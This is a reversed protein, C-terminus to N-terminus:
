SKHLIHIQRETIKLYCRRLDSDPIHNAKAAVISETRRIQEATAEPHDLARLVRAHASSVRETGLCCENAQPMLDAAQGTHKLATTPEDQALLVLGIEMEGWMEWAPLGIEQAVHVAERARDLASQPNSLQREAQALAALGLALDERCESAQALAVAETLYRHATYPQDCALEVLGLVSLAEALCHPHALARAQAIDCQLRRRAEAYDGLHYLALGLGIEASIVGHECRLTQQLTLAQQFQEAASAYHGRYLEWYGLCTLGYAEAPQAGIRQALTLGKTLYQEAAAFQGLKLYLLGIDLGDWAIRNHDDIAEHCTYAKQQYALAQDYNGLHLHVYGLIHSIRGQVDPLAAVGVLALASELAALAPRPQGMFYRAFGIQALFRAQVSADNLRQALAVGQEATAIAAQYHGELNLYRVQHAWARLKLSGEGNSDALAMLEGLDADREALRGQLFRLHARDALLQGRKALCDSDTCKPDLQALLDLMRSQHAEAESWAFLAKARQAALDHYHLAQKIEGGAEFHHALDVFARRELQQLAYGARRHLLQRRVLSLSEVVVRRILDHNFQYGTEEEKLLQRAVLEDLANMTEMEGRGATLRVPEFKFSRGLIAGAELIQRALPRLHTLRAEIAERVTDPLPLEKLENPKPLRQGPAVLIRLTELLFFPNGDTAKQLQEALGKENALSGALHLLLQRVSSVDLGTLRLESLIKLQTLHHLLSRVTDAEDSRYAGCILLRNDQLQSGLYALWNLTASDAWHLNDLCLLLPQPGTTLGLIMRCLAEFLRNRAEDPGVRLPPPLTSYLSHLEPLLRAAEALWIPRINPILDAVNLISRLAQAIPQYPLAQTSPQCVGVLVLAQSQLRTAFEQMLRSKGIGPEGSILVIKGHGTQAKTYARELQRLPSERGVLPVELSPLTTWRPETTPIVDAPFRDALVAQYADRTEPLPSVGLERELAVTCREFQQLAKSRDGITAYLEILRRHVDEALDDTALYRQAYAIAADYQCRTTLEEILTTLTELYINEWAQGELTAWVEFEPNAPLSFGALFRGRYCGVARQLAEIRRQTEPTACLREFDAADSWIQDSNLSIHDESAWVIKPDPLAQRLHTLLHSLNRRAIAEPTNSWFLHCLQERPIPQLRVALRYLLARTQRRPITLPHGARKVDPPGLLYVQLIPASPGASQKIELRSSMIYKQGKRGTATPLLGGQVFSM